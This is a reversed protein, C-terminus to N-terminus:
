SVEGTEEDVDEGPQEVLTDITGQSTQAPSLSNFLLQGTPNVGMRITKSRSKPISVGTVVEINAEICM